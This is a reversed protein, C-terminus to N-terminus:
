KTLAKARVEMDPSDDEDAASADLDRGDHFSAVVSRLGAYGQGSAGKHFHKTIQSRNGGSSHKIAAVTASQLDEYEEGNVQYM